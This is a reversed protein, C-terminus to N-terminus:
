NGLQMMMSTILPGYEFQGTGDLSYVVSPVVDKHGYLARGVQKGTRTDWIRITGDTGTSGSIHTGSPAFTVAWIPNSTEQISLELEGTMANWIRASGSCSAIQAGDPSYALSVVMSEHAEIVRVISGTSSDWIRVTADNACSAVHSGSPSYVVCNITETHGKLPDLVLKGGLADWICVTHDSSGSAIHAGDPSYAISNTASQHECLPGAVLQGSRSDWIIISTDASGSAIHSGDPSFTVSLVSATHGVLPGLIRRGDRADWVCISPEFAGAVIRTGEPSLAVSYISDELGKLEGVRGAHADWNCITEDNSGSIIRTGDPSYTLSNVFHTHGEFPRSVEQGTHADWLCINGETTACALRTGDPSYVVQLPITMSDRQLPGLLTQGTCADWVIITCDFSCSVVRLSDPSYGVSNIINTHGQLPGLTMQSTDPDWIRIMQDHSGSAIRAGDPSYAVSSVQDSHGKLVREMGGTSADWLRVTKDRSGSAIRTGDPSYVVSHVDGAHGELPGVAVQGTRADWIYITSDWSGSVIYAGSPSYAVSAVTSTHGELPGLIKKGNHADLITFSEHKYSSAVIRSGDPSVALSLTISGVPWKALLASKGRTVADGKVQILGRMHQTYHKSVPADPPWLPLASIYIHPTSLSIPRNAFATVFNYADQVLHRTEDKCHNATWHLLQSLIGPGLDISKKLNLIEMWLLLRESIFEHLDQSDQASGQKLHAAWYCSAYFLEPSIAKDVRESLDPIDKDFLYSSELACLNFPPDVAQLKEFCTRAFLAHRREKDCYFSGSRERTFLFDSFSAHLTTIGGTEPVNLLSWLPHLADSVRKPNMGFLGAITHVPLPEQACVVTHLVDSMDNEDWEELEPDGFAASLITTYLADIVKDKSKSTASTDLIVELRREPNKSFNGASVYRVVTAAYIFLTGSHRALTDLQAATLPTPMHKLEDNLYTRIDKQVAKEDLNHLYLEFRAREGIRRTMQDRIAPEPRSTILVKLPLGQTHALLVQLVERVGDDGECEDLADIVVVLNSLLKASVANLPNAILKGFQEGIDQHQSDFNEQLVESLASRFEASYRALQYSITPIILNVDRCRPLMRACFFSAGLQQSNHLEACLTQAITTKGTGAMGNLWFIAEREEDQLWTRLEEMVGDRTGPTCRRRGQSMAQNSNFWAEQVPGLRELRIEGLRQLLSQIKRYSNMVGQADEETELIRKLTGRRRKAVVHDVIVQLENSIQNISETMTPPIPSDFYSGLERLLGDLEQGLQQYDERGRAAAEFIDVCEVLDSFASKLPGFSETGKELLKVIAKLGTWKQGATHHSHTPTDHRSGSSSPNTNAVPESPHKIVSNAAAPQAGLGPPTNDIPPKLRSTARHFWYKARRKM